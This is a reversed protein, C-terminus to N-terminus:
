YSRVESAGSPELLVRGADVYVRAGNIQLAQQGESAPVGDTTVIADVHNMDPGVKSMENVYGEHIEGPAAGIGGERNCRYRIALYTIQEVVRTEGAAYVDAGSDTCVTM